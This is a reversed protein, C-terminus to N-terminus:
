KSYIFRSSILSNRPSFRSRVTARICDSSRLSMGIRSAVFRESSSWAPLSTRGTRASSTAPAQPVGLASETRKAAADSSSWVILVSSDTAGIQEAKFVIPTVSNKKANFLQVFFFILCLSTIIGSLILVLTIKNIKAELKSFSVNCIKM